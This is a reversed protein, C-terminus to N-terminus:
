KKKKLNKKILNKAYYEPMINNTNRGILIIKQDVGLKKALDSLYYPDVSVCHGGVLGPYFPAFNWKTKAAKIVDITNINIKDFIMQAQNILAINIDRQVNELMKSAEAVRINKIQHTKNLIFKYIYNIKNLELASNASVIKTINKLTNKKDGPNVREPSYGLYFFNNNKSKYFPILESVKEIINESLYETTGPNVTSEFIILDKKKLFKSVYKTALKLPNLNPKNSKNVPTPVCLIYVNCDVNDLKSVFKINKYKKSLNLIKQKDIDYGTCSFFKSLELLLPMGVYGLGIVCINNNRKNSM